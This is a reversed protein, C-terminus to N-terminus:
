QLLTRAGPLPGQSDIFKLKVIVHLQTLLSCHTFFCKLEKSFIGLSSQLSVSSDFLLSCSFMAFVGRNSVVLGIYDTM